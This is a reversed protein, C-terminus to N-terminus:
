AIRHTIATELKQDDETIPVLKEPLIRLQEGGKVHCIWRRSLKDQADLVVPIGDLEPRSVLGMITVVCGALLDLSLSHAAAAALPAVGVNM